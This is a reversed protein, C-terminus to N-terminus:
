KWFRWFRKKKKKQKEEVVKKDQGEMKLLVEDLKREEEVLVQARVKFQDSLNHIIKQSIKNQESHKTQFDLGELLNKKGAQYATAREGLAAEMLMSQNVTGAHVLTWMRQKGVVRNVERSEDM